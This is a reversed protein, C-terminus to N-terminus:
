VSIVLKGQTHHEELLKHVQVISEVSLNGVIEVKVPQLVGRDVFATLETLDEGISEWKTENPSLAKALMFVTSYTANLGFLSNPGNSPYLPTVFKTDEGVISVVHGDVGISKFCLTKTSGGFLDFSVDMPQGNNLALVKGLVEDINDSYQVLDGKALGLGMLYEASKQSGYTAIIKAGTVKVLQVLFSGVGGSAGTILVTKQFNLHGVKQLCQVATIGGIPMGATQEFSLSKPKLAILKESIVLCEAYTGSKAGAALAMGYVEDKVKFNKVNNGVKEIVGSFDAGLILGDKPIPGGFAGKRVKYDVPNFGVAKVKVLVYGDQLDPVPYNKNEQFNQVPGYSNIVIARM